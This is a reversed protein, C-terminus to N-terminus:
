IAEGPPQEDSGPLEYYFGSVPLITM